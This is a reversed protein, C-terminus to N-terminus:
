RSIEIDDISVEQDSKMEMEQINLNISPNQSSLRPIIHSQGQSHTTGYEMMDRAHHHQNFSISYSYGLIYTTYTMVALLFLQMASSAPYLRRFTMKRM